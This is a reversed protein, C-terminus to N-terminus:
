QLQLNSKKIRQAIKIADHTAKVNHTRIIDAGHIVSIIEAALSGYLRKGPDKENLLSGIFSKRSVSILLPQGLKISKLNQIMDLDRKLWDSNIKTFFIGKANKRFFGIAPDVAIRSKPIGSKTAISISDQLLKKAQIVQNGYIRGTGFACVIVSPHYEELVQIMYKDHKLGTVDNLIDVGLHFAAKAVGARCTDISVPLNSVKQITNIAKTIREIETKEPVLTNLYPATSMGGVDIFDAGGEEMQKATKAIDRQETHVSKKYFSEPSANIIGMVRVQNKNGVPVRGLRNM